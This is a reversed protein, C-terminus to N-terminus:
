RNVIWPQHTGAAHTCGEFRADGEVGTWGLERMGIPCDYYARSVWTKLRHVHTFGPEAGSVSQLFEFIDRGASDVLALGHRALYVDALWALAAVLKQRTESGEASLRADILRNVLAAKAGPTDTPPIIVDALAVLLRDQELSLVAPRWDVVAATGQM